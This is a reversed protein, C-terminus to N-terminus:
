VFIQLARLFARPQSGLGVNCVRAWLGRIADSYSEKWPEFTGERTVKVGLFRLHPVNPLVEGGVQISDIENGFIVM